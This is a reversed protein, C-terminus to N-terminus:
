RAAEAAMRLVLHFGLPSEIPESVSGPALAAAADRVAPSFGALADEDILGGSAATGDDQSLAAAEWHFRAGGKEVLKKIQKLEGLAQAKSRTRAREGAGKIGTHGLLIHAYPRSASVPPVKPLTAEGGRAKADLLWDFAQEVYFRDPFEHGLGTIVRFSGPATRKKGTLNSRVAGAMSFNQDQDGLFVVTRVENHASEPAAPAATTVLGAFLKPAFKYTALTMTGGASHGIMLVAARDVPYHEIVWLALGAIYERDKEDWAFGPGAATHGQVALVFCKRTRALDSLMMTKPDGGHGHLSVILGYKKDPEPEFAQSLWGVAAADGKLRLKTLGEAKEEVVEPAKLPRDKAATNGLASALLALAVLAHRPPRM